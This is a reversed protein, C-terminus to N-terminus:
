FLASVNLLLTQSEPRIGIPLRWFVIIDILQLNLKVCQPFFPGFIFQFKKPFVWKPGDVFGGFPIPNLGYRRKYMKNM